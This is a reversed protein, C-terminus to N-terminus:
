ARVGKLEYVRPCVSVCTRVCVCLHLRRSPEPSVPVRVYLNHGIDNLALEAVLAGHTLLFPPQQTVLPDSILGADQSPSRPRCVSKGGAPM